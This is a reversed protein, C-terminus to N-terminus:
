QRVWAAFLFFFEGKGEEAQRGKRAERRQPEKGLSIWKPSAQFHGFVKSADPRGM